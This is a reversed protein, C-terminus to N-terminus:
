GQYIYRRLNCPLACYGNVLTLGLNVDTRCALCIYENTCTICDRSCRVCIDRQANYYTGWM